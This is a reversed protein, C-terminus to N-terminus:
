SYRRLIRGLPCPVARLRVYAVCAKLRKRALRENQIGIRRSRSATVFGLRANDVEQRHKRRLVAPTMRRELSSRCRIRGLYIM